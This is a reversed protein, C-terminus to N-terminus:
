TLGEEDYTKKFGDYTFEGNKMFKEPYEKKLADIDGTITVYFKNGDNKIEKIEIGKEDKFQKELEERISTKMKEATEDDIEVGSKSFLETYDYFYEMSFDNMKKSKSGFTGNATMQIVIGSQSMDGKCTLTQNEEKGCGTLCLIMLVFVILGLLKKKM